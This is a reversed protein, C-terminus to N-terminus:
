GSCHRFGALGSGSFATIFDYCALFFDELFVTGDWSLFSLTFSNSNPIRIKNNFESSDSIFSRPVFNHRVYPM